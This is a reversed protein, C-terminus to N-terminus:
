TLLLNPTSVSGTETSIHVVHQTTLRIQFNTLSQRTSGVHYLNFLQWSKVTLLVHHDVRHNDYHWDIVGLM